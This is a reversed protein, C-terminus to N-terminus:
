ATNTTAIQHLANVVCRTVRNVVVLCVSSTILQPHIIAIVKCANTATQTNALAMTFVSTVNREAVFAMVIM